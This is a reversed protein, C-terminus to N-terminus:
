HPAPWSAVVQFGPGSPGAEFSGGSSEVRERMGVLGLGGRGVAPPRWRAAGGDDSVAVRVSRSEGVAVEVAVTAGAGAHRRTNTLAEQVVRFVAGGISPPVVAPDGATALEVALGDARARDVLETVDAIGPPPALPVDTASERLVGLIAGIQDLADRSATRIAEVAVAAQEPKRDILHGAVGSQVNITAIAHAVSDHLDQAIRLRENALAQQHEHAVREREAAAREARGALAQGALVAALTWGVAVIQALGLGRGILGGAVAAGALVGAGLWATRRPTTYGLALLSLPGPLLAPGGAYNRALYVFMTTAVTGTVVIPWRRWLALSAAGVIGCTFALADVTREGPDHDIKATGLIVVAVLLGAAVLDVWRPARANPPCIV